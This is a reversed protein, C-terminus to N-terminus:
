SVDSLSSNGVNALVRGGSVCIDFDITETSVANLQVFTPEVQKIFCIM